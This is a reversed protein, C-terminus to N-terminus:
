LGLPVSYCLRIMRCVTMAVGDIPIYVDKLIFKNWNNLICNYQITHIYYHSSYVSSFWPRWSSIRWGVWLCQCGNRSRSRIPHLPHPWLLLQVGMKRHQGFGNSLWKLSWLKATNAIFYKRLLQYLYYILSSLWISQLGYFITLNSM